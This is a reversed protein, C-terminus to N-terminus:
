ETELVPLDPMLWGLDRQMLGTVFINFIMSSSQLSSLEGTATDDALPAVLTVRAAYQGDYTFVDATMETVGREDLLEGFARRAVISQTTRIKEILVEAAAQAESESGYTLAIVVHQQGDVVTDAIGVQRAPPIPIFTEALQDYAAQREEASLNLFSLPDSYYTPTHPFVVAQLLYGEGAPIMARAVTEYISRYSRQAGSLVDGAFRVLGGDASSVIMRPALLTPQSRGLSGGFINGDSRNAFDVQSGNECGSAGCLLTYGETLPTVTYGRTEHAAIVADTDYDLMLVTVNSPPAGYTLSQEIATVDFGMVTQAEPLIRFLNPLYDPGVRVGMFSAFWRDSEISDSELLAILEADTTVTPTGERSATVARYDTYMVVEQLLAPNAPLSDFMLLLPHNDPAPDQAATPLAFVLLACIVRCLRKFM